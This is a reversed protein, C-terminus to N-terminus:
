YDYKTKLLDFVVKGADKLFFSKDVSCVTEKTQSFTFYRQVSYEDEDKTEGEFKVLVCVNSEHEEFDVIQGGFTWEYLVDTNFLKNDFVQRLEKLKESM